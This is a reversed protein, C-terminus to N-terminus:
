ADGGVPPTSIARSLSRETFRIVQAAHTGTECTEALDAAITMAEARRFGIIREILTRLICPEGKHQEYDPAYFNCSPCSCCRAADTDWLDDWALEEADSIAWEAEHTDTTEPSTASM